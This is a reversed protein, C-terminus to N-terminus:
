NAAEAEPAEQEQRILELEINIRIEDGVLVGGTELLQNWELGWDKRNITTEATFGASYTGWPSKAVGSHEVDLQVERAKGRITLDGYLKAPHDDILEVRKSRFTLEPYNEVDLFDASRLHADRQAEFTNISAADITIDVSTQEPKEPDFDITGTFKEFRGRVNSIMMHRVKFEILSHAPDIQWKM